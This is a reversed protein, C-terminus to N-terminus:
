SPLRLCPRGSRDPILRIAIRGHTEASPSTSSMRLLRTQESSALFEECGEKRKKVLRLSGGVLFDMFSAWEM